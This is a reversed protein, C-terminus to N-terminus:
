AAIRSLSVSRVPELPADCLRWAAELVTVYRSLFTNEFDPEIMDRLEQPLKTIGPLGCEAVASKFTHSLYEPPPPLRPPRHERTRGGGTLARRGWVMALWFMDLCDGRTCNRMFLQCCEFHLCTTAPSPSADCNAYPRSHCLCWWDILGPPFSDTKLFTAGVQYSTSEEVTPGNGAM